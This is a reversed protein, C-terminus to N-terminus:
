NQDDKGSPGSSLFRVPPLSDKLGFGTIAVLSVENPRITGDEILKELGSLAAASTPEAFIGESSALFVQWELISEDSVSIASGGTDAIARIVQSKRPPLGVSIGGAITAGGANWQGGAFQAAIPSVASAQIAHLKPTRNVAGASLLERYGKWAGVLLSGNGVPIIIHDPAPFMQSVVEYAFTKTGELFYPSLNHSAYVIGRERQFRTAAETSAERPGPVPHTEAGYVRIQGMKARPANAPAFIHAKIGVRASYAAVAAGANGSSDEVVERVDHEMAVSMMVAAGRDKFSGTPNMSELKGFVGLSGLTDCVRPLPVIPTRGEGMTATLSDSHFPVPMNFGLWDISHRDSDKYELDLPFGCHICRLTLMDADHRHECETCVLVIHSM